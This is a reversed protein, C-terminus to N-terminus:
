SRRGAGASALADILADRDAAVASPDQHLAMVVRLAPAPNLPRLVLGPRLTGASSAPLLAVGVGAAVLGQMVLQDAQVMVPGVPTGARAAARELVRLRAAHAGVSWGEGAVAAFPVPGGTRAAPHDEPLAVAWDEVLLERAALGGPVIRDEGDVWIVAVDLRGEAVGAAAEAADAAHGITVRDRRPADLLGVAEPVLSALLSSVAAVRVRPAAGARLRAMDAEAAAVRDMVARAHGALLRGADTLEVARGTRRVVPVGAARATRALLRSAAPQTLSLSRAAATVTGHRELADIMRLQDLTFM